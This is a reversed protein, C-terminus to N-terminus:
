YYYYNIKTILGSIESVTRNGCVNCYFKNFYIQNFFSRHSESFDWCYNARMPFDVNRMYHYFNENLNRDVSKTVSKPTGNSCWTRKKEINNLKSYNNNSTTSLIKSM